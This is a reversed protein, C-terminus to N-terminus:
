LVLSVRGREAGALHDEHARWAAALRRVGERLQEPPQGFPIRVHTGFSGSPSAVGVPVISVGHRMATHAFEGAERGIDVWLSMGAQPRTFRWTPLAETLLGALLAEREEIEGLRRAYRRDADQLLEDAITQSPVATGLDALAKLRALRGILREEARLWGVRLGGWLPKSVSGITVIRQAVEDDAFAALPPAVPGGRQTEVFTADDVLLADWGAALETLRQRAAAPMVVGLPNHGAPMLYILRPAVREVARALGALEVGASGVAVGNARVDRALFLEAAGPYTPDEVVVDDGPTLSLEAVLTLAQQAGSTVLVQAATTPLGRETFRRAITARLAPLGLVYYGHHDSTALVRRTARELVHEDLGDSGAWYAGRLDITDDDLVIANRFITEHPLASALHSERPGSVPSGEALVVTGSGQRTAVLGQGRLREYAAMVTGRSVTLDRALLREAPLRTGPPLGGSRILAEVADALAAYLAGHGDHWDGLRELLDHSSVQVPM